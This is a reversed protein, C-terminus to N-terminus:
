TKSAETPKEFDYGFDFKYQWKWKQFKNSPDCNVLQPMQKKKYAPIMDTMTVQCLCLTRNQGTVQKVTIRMLGEVVGDNVVEWREAHDPSRDCQGLRLVNYEPSIRVCRQRYMLRGHQDLYFINQPLQRYFYCYNTLSIYEDEAVYFCFTSMSNSVEGYYVSDLPPTPIEPSITEMFWQFSKCQLNEKLVRRKNLSVVDKANFSTRKHPWVYSSALFFKKWDDMWLEAVRMANKQIITFADGDFKYSFPKFSHAVRSCPHTLVQGGCMWTRFPLEINEGGWIEMDEDFGGISFFYDKRVAIACGVITPTRHSVYDHKFDLREMEHKPIEMWTQRLDWTFGGRPADEKGTRIVLTRADISGVLPQIVTKPNKAIEELLPEAWDINCESHGDLFVLVDGTAMDAGLLRARVLGERKKTRVLKVKRPLLEVYGQLPEALDEHLSHDNVLIIEKLTREPTKVLVSHVTRLLMSLAENHFPIIVSISLDGTSYARICEPPRLDSINRELSTHESLTVNINYTSDPPRRTNVFITKQLERLKKLRTKESFLQVTRRRDEQIEDLHQVRSVYMMLLMTTFLFILFIQSAYHFLKRSIVHAMIVHRM